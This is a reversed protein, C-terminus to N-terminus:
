VVYLSHFFLFLYWGRKMFYSTNRKEAKIERKGYSDLYNILLAAISSGAEILISFHLRLKCFYYKPIVCLVLWAAYIKHVYQM